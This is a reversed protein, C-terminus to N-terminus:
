LCDGSRCGHPGTFDHLIRCAGGHHTDIVQGAYGASQGTARIPTMMSGQRPLALGWLHACGPFVPPILNFSSARHGLGILAAACILPRSQEFQVRRGYRAGKRTAAQRRIQWAHWGSPPDDDDARAFAHSCHRNSGFLKIALVAFGIADGAKDRRPVSVPQRRLPDFNDLGTM